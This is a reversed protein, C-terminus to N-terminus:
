MSLSAQNFVSDGTGFLYLRTYFFLGHKKERNKAQNEESDVAGAGEGGGGEVCM